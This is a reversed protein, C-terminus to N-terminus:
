RVGLIQRTDPDFEVVIQSNPKCPADNDCTHVAGITSHGHTIRDPLYTENSEKVSVTVLQVTTEEIPAIRAIPKNYHEVIVAGGTRVYQLVDAWNKRVEDSKMRQDDM